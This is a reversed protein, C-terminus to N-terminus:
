SAKPPTLNQDAWKLLQEKTGKFHRRDPLRVWYTRQFGAPSGFTGMGQPYHQPHEPPPDGYLQAVAAAVEVVRRFRDLSGIVEEVARPAM